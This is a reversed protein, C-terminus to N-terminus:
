LSKYLHHGRLGMNKFLGTACTALFGRCGMEIHFLMNCNISINSPRSCIYISVLINVLIKVITVIFTNRSSTKKELRSFVFM